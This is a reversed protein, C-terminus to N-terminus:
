QQLMTVVFSSDLIYALDPKKDGNFDATALASIPGGVRFTTPGTFKGTGDGFFVDISNVHNVSTTVGIAIDLHGDHNFDAVVPQTLASGHLAYSVPPQFTGDGKGLLITLNNSNNGTALILDHKGDLNLDAVLLESGFTPVATPIPAEFTGDGKGLFVSVGASTLAAVDAKGDNNFDSVVFTPFTASVATPIGSAFNADGTNLLVSIGNEDSAVLDLKGDNNFDGALTLRHNIGQDFHGGATFTGDGNNLCVGIAAVGDFEGAGAFDLSGDLNFDGLAPSTGFSCASNVTEVTFTGDGNGVLLLPTFGWALLDPKTDSTFQGVRLDQAPAVVLVNSRFTGNGNGYLVSIGGLNNGFALDLNGDGNLDAALFGTSSSLGDGNYMRGQTFSGDGNNLLINIYEAHDSSGVWAIDAHGDGNLDRVVPPSSIGSGQPGNYTHTTPFHGTGDGLLVTIAPPTNRQVAVLDLDNGPNLQAAIVTSGGKGVLLPAAFSGNGNGLMMLISGGSTAGAIDLKKDNNFDGSTISSLGYTGTSTTVVASFTGDGKGPLINVTYGNVYAIDLKGDGNFDATNTTDIAPNGGSAIITEKGPQFTGDGNGFMVAIANQGTVHDKGFVAVDLKGDNNFDGLIPLGPRDVGTVMTVIPAGFGGTGTGLLVTVATSVSDENNTQTGVIDTKGDNNVDAKAFIGLNVGNDYQPLNLFQADAFSTFSLSFSLFSAATLIFTRFRM